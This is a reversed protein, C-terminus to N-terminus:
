GNDAQSIAVGLRLAQRMRAVDRKVASLNEPTRSRVYWDISATLFQFKARAERKAAEAGSEFATGWRSKPPPEPAVVRQGRSCAAFGEDWADALRHKMAGARRCGSRVCYVRAPGRKPQVIPEACIACHRQDSEDFRYPNVVADPM